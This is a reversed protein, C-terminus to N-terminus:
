AAAERLAAVAAHPDPVTVTVTRGSSLTLRLTPGSRVTYCTRSPTWWFGWAVHLPPLDIVEARDIRDLRYTRRPWGLLGFRVSVGNPGAATRISAATLVNVLVVVAIFLVPVTYSGNGLIPLPVAVAAGILVFPWNTAQGTYITHRSPGPFAAATM